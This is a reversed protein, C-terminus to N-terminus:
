GSQGTMFKSLLRIKRIFGNKRCAWISAFINFNNQFTLTWIKIFVSSTRKLILLKMATKDFQVGVWELGSWGVEPWELGIWSVGPYELGVYPSYLLLGGERLKKTIEIYSRKRGVYM